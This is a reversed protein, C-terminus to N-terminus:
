RSLGTAVRDLSQTHVHATNKRYFGFLDLYYFSHIPDTGKCIRRDRRAFPHHLSPSTYLNHSRNEKSKCTATSTILSHSRNEKSKYTATTTIKRPNHSVM